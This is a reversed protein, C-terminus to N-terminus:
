QELDRKLQFNSFLWLVTTEQNRNPNRNANRDGNRTEDEVSRATRAWMCVSSCILSTFQFTCLEFIYHLIHVCVYCNKGVYVLSSNTVGHVECGESSFDIRSLVDRVGYHLTHSVSSWVSWLSFYTGVYVKCVRSPSFTHSVIDRVGYLLTMYLTNCILHSIYKVNKM